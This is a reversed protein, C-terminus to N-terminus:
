KWDYEIIQTNSGAQKIIRIKENKLDIHWSDNSLLDVIKALKGGDKNCTWIERPDNIGGKLIFLIKNKPARKELKYNNV